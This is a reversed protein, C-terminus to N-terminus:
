DLHFKSPPFYILSEESQLELLSTSCVKQVFRVAM